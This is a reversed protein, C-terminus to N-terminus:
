TKEACAKNTYIHRFEALTIEMMDTEPAERPLKSGITRIVGRLYKLFDKKKITTMKEEGMRKNHGLSGRWNNGM